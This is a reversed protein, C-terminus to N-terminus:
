YSLLPPAFGDQSTPSLSFTETRQQGKVTVLLDVTLAKLVIKEPSCDEAESQPHHLWDDLKESNTKDRSFKGDDNHSDKITEQILDLLRRGLARRERPCPLTFPPPGSDEIFYRAEELLRIAM